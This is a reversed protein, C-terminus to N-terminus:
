QAPAAAAGAPAQYKPSSKSRFLEVLEDPKLLEPKKTAWDFVKCYNHKGDTKLIVVTPGKKVDFRALAEEEKKGLPFRIQVKLYDRLYKNVVPQGLGRKEFWKSLGEQEKPYYSAFYIFIDADFTKQLELAEELGKAGNFWKNDPFKKAAASPLQANASFVFLLSCIVFLSKM